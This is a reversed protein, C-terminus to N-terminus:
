CMMGPRVADSKSSHTRGARRCDIDDRRTGERDVDLTRADQVV